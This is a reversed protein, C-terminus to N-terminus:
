TVMKSNLTLTQYRNRTNSGQWIFSICTSEGMKHTTNENKSLSSQLVYTKLKLSIWNIEEKTAWKTDYQHFRQKVWLWRSKCGHKRRLTKARVNLNQDM